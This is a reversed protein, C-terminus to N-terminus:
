EDEKPRDAQRLEKGLRVIEDFDPDNAFSGIVASIWDKKSPEPSRGKLLDMERELKEVREEITMAMAEVGSETMCVLYAKRRAPDLFSSDASSAPSPTFGPFNKQPDHGLTDRPDPLNAAPQKALHKAPTQSSFRKNPPLSTPRRLNLGKSSLSM